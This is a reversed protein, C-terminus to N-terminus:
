SYYGFCFLLVAPFVGFQMVMDSTFATKLNGVGKGDKSIAVFTKRRPWDRIVAKRLLCGLADPMKVM